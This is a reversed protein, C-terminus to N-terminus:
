PNPEPRLRGGADLECWYGDIALGEGASHQAAFIDQIVECVQERSMGEVELETCSSARRMVAQLAHTADIGILDTVEGIIHDYEDHVVEWIQYEGDTTSWRVGATPVEDVGVVEVHVYPKGERMQKEEGDHLSKGSGNM